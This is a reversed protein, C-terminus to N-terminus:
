VKEGIRLKASKARPNGTIEEETPYVPKKTIIRMLPLSNCVCIPFSPPCVCGRAQDLLFRKVIRDELSHFSIVALRGNPRLLKVAQQLFKKLSGLEDNVSIRLSQFIRRATDKAKHRVRGPISIKIIEFLEISGVIRKEARAQVIGLAISRSFREEGYEKFIRELRGADYTNVIEAATLEQEQDFRMDLPGDSQFSFGRKPDDLITSSLGLDALIGDVEEIGAEAAISAIQAFNGHVLILNRSLTKKLADRDLDIALVKGEEGIRKLLEKSHGGAGYTADIFCQGQQPKLFNIVEKLLVPIHM